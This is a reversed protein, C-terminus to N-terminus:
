TDFAQTDTPLIYSLNSQRHYRLSTMLKMLCSPIRQVVETLTIPTHRPRSLTFIRDFFSLGISTINERYGSYLPLVSRYITGRYPHCPLLRRSSCHARTQAPAVFILMRWFHCSIYIVQGSRSQDIPRYCVNADTSYSLLISSIDLNSNTSKRPSM